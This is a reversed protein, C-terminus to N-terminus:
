NNKQSHYLDDIIKHNPPPILGTYPASLSDGKISLWKGKSELGPQDPFLFVYLLVTRKTTENTYVGMEVGDETKIVIGVEEHVERVAAELPKEGKEIGGGPFELMGHYPGDDERNQVWVLLEDPAKWKYFLALAVPLLIM